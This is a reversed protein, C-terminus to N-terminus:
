LKRSNVLNPFPKLPHQTTVEGQTTGWTSTLNYLTTNPLPAPTLNAVSARPKAVVGGGKKRGRTPTAAETLIHPTQKYKLSSNNM